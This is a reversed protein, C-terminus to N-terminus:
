IKLLSLVSNNLNSTGFSHVIGETDQLLSHHDAGVMYTWNKQIGSFLPTPNPFTNVDTPENRLERIFGWVHINGNVVSYSFFSGAGIKSYKRPLSEMVADVQDVCIIVQIITMLIVFLLIFSKANNMRFLAYDSKYTSSNYPQFSQDNLLNKKIFISRIKDCLFEEAMGEVLGVFVHGSRSQFPM